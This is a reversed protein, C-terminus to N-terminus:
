LVRTFIIIMLAYRMHEVTAQWGAILPVVDSAGGEEGVEFGPRGVTAGAIVGVIPIGVGVTM